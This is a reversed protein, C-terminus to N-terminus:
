ENAARLGIQINLKYSPNIESPWRLEVHRAGFCTTWDDDDRADSTPGWCEFTGDDKTMGWEGYLMNYVKEYVAKATTENTFYITIDAWSGDDPAFTNDDKTICRISILGAYEKAGDKGSTWFYEGIHTYEKEIKVSAPAFDFRDAYNEMTDTAAITRIAQINAAIEDATKGSYDTFVSASKVAPVKEDSPKTTGETGSPTTEESSGAPKKDGSETTSNATDDNKSSDDDNAGCATLCFMTFVALLVLFMRTKKM